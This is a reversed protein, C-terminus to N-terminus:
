HWWSLDITEFPRDKLSSAELIETDEETLGHGAAYREAMDLLATLFDSHEAFREKSYDIAGQTSIVFPWDSAEMLLLERAAQELIQQLVDDRDSIHRLVTVFREELPYITNWMWVVQNNAWVYHHGGEGWSGEPLSITKQPPHDEIAQACDSLKIEQEPHRALQRMVKELFRPGEFWWHGFLETDFPAAIIGPKEHTGLHEVLERRILSVFDTADHDLQWEIHEPDYVRKDGLDVRAGTVGWYRLGSNHHKKHFDLYVGAGPYGMDAAWVRAASRPDRSFVAPAVPNTSGHSRVNYIESLSRDPDSKFPEEGRAGM